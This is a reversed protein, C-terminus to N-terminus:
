ERVEHVDDRVDASIARGRRVGATWDILSKTSIRDDPDATIHYRYSRLATEFEAWMRILYTSEVQDAAAVLDRPSTKAPLQATGTLAVPRYHAIAAAVVYSEREAGKVRDIFAQREAM